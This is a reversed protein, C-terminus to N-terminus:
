TAGGAIRAALEAFMVTLTEDGRQAARQSARLYDHFAGRGPPDLDLDLRRRLRPPLFQTPRRM